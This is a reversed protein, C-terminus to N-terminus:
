ITKGDTSLTHETHSLILFITSAYLEYICQCFAIKGIFFIKRHFSTDSSKSLQLFCAVKAGGILSSESFYVVTLHTLPQFWWNALSVYSCD